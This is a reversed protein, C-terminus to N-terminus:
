GDICFAFAGKDTTGAHDASVTVTWVGPMVLELGEIVSEGNGGNTITAAAGSGHGHDPMWAKVQTLVAGPLIAGGPDHLKVVWRNTGRGPPAPLADALEFRLRASEGDVTLGAVYTEVTTASGECPGGGIPASTEGSCGSAAALLLAAFTARLLM